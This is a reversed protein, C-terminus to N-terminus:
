IQNFFYCSLKMIKITEGGQCCLGLFLLGLRPGFGWSVLENFRSIKTSYKEKKHFFYSHYLNKILFRVHPPSPTNWLEWTWQYIWILNCKEDIRDETRFSTKKIRDILFIYIYKKCHYFLGSIIKNCFISYLYIRVMNIRWHFKAEQKKRAEKQPKKKKTLHFDLWITEFKRM